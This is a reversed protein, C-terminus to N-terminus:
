AHVEVADRALTHRIVGGMALRKSKLHARDIPLQADQPAHQPESDFPPQNLACWLHLHKPPFLPPFSHNTVLFKGVEYGTSRWYQSLNCGDKL